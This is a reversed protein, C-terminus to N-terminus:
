RLRDLVEILLEVITEVIEPKKRNVWILTTVNRMDLHGQDDILKNFISNWLSADRHEVVTGRRLDWMYDCQMSRWNMLLNGDSSFSINSARALVLHTWRHSPLLM